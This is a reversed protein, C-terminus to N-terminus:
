IPIVEGNYIPLSSLVAETIKVKDEDTLEYAPGAPGTPGTAGVPGQPGRINVPLVETPGEDSGFQTPTFSLDGDASLNPVYTWGPEGPEVVIDSDPPLEEEAGGLEDCSVWTVGGAGNSVPVMDAATGDPVVVASGPLADRKLVDGFAIECGDLQVSQLYSDETVLFYVGNPIDNYLHDEPENLLYADGRSGARVRFSQSGILQMAASSGDIEYTEATERDTRYYTIRGVTDLSVNAFANPTIRWYVGYDSEFGYEATSESGDWTVTDTAKGEFPKGTIKVWSVPEKSAAEIESELNAFKSDSNTIHNNLRTWVTNALDYVAASTVPKANGPAVSAATNVKLIGNELKLTADTDFLPESKVAEVIEAKDEETLEYAPGAPGQPGRVNAAPIPDPHEGDVRTMDWTLYGESDVSPVYTWGNEGPDGKDGKFNVAPTIAGEYDLEMREARFHLWGYEDPYPVFALGTAGTPGVDGKDGKDGKPGQLSGFPIWDNATPSYIYGTNDVAYIDPAGTPFAARLEDVSTYVDAVTFAPGTDGKDGKLSALWDEETGTFGHAVAIGYASIYHRPTIITGDAPRYTDTYWRMYRRMRHTYLEMTNAYRDYDGNAFDILACLYPWYVDSHPAAALLEGTKTDTTIATFDLPANLMVETWIHSEVENIWQIKADDGFVNPKIHDVFDIVAKATTKVGATQALWQEKTGTYGREQANKYPDATYKPQPTSNDAPRYNDTYWRMYRKIRDNFLQMSNTYREYDGNALDIMAMLYPWYLESHPAKVMLEGDIAVEIFTTPSNLMVETWVYGEAENVWQLKAAVDFANPKISDIITILEQATM